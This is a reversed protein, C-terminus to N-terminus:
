KKIDPYIKQMFLNFGDLWKAKQDDTWSADWGPFKDLLKDLLPNNEPIKQTQPMEILESSKPIVKKAPTRPVNNVPVTRVKSTIHPSLPIGADSALSTFFKICKRRVDGDVGYHYQFLEELQAYTATQPDVSGNTFVIGYANNCLDKLRKTREEERSDVLLRLHHTPKNGTDILNMFRMAAMIQTSASGSFMTDLYSRDIRGPVNEQLREVLHYFSRPSIYPPSYKKTNEPPM